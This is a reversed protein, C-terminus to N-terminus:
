SASTLVPVVCIEDGDSKTLLRCTHAKRHPLETPREVLLSMNSEEKQPGRLFPLPTRVLQELLAM